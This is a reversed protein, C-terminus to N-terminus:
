IKIFGGVPFEKQTSFSVINSNNKSCGLTIVAVALSGLLLLARRSRFPAAFNTTTKMLAEEPAPSLARRAGDCGNNIRRPNARLRRFRRTHRKVRQRQRCVLFGGGLRRTVPSVLFLILHERRRLTQTTSKRTASTCFKTPSASGPASPPM